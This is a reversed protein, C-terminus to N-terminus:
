RPGGPGSGLEDRRELLAQTALVGSPEKSVATKEVLSKGVVDGSAQLPPLLVENRPVGESADM